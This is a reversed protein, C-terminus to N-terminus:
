QLRWIERYALRELLTTRLFSEVTGNVGVLVDINNRKFEALNPTKYTKGKYTTEIHWFNVAEGDFDDIVIRFYGEPGEFVPSDADLVIPDRNDLIVENLQYCHGCVDPRVIFRPDGSWPKDREYTVAGMALHFSADGKSFDAPIDLTIYMDEYRMTIREQSPAYQPLTNILNDDLPGFSKESVVEGDKDMLVCDVVGKESDLRNVKFIYDGLSIQEGEQLTAERPKEYTITFEDMGPAGMEAVEVFDPSIFKPILYTSGEAFVEPIYYKFDQDYIGETPLSEPLDDYTNLGHAV